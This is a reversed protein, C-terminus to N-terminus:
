PLKINALLMTIQLRRLLNSNGTNCCIRNEEVFYRIVRTMLIAIVYITIVLQSVKSTKHGKKLGLYDWYSFQPVFEPVLFEGKSMLCHCKQAIQM